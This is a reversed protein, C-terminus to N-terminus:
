PSGVQFVAGVVEVHDGLLSVVLIGVSRVALSRGSHRGNPHCSVTERDKIPRVRYAEM